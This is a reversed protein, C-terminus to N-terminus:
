RKEAETDNRAQELTRGTFLRYFFAVFFVLVVLALAKYLKYEIFDM